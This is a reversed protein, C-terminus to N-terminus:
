TVEEAPRNVNWLPTQSGFVASPLIALSTTSHRENSVEGWHLQWARWLSQKLQMSSMLQLHFFLQQRSAGRDKGSSSLFSSFSLIVM